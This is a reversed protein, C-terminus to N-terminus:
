APLKHTGDCGPPRKSRGCICDNPGKGALIREIHREFRAARTKPQKAQSVVINFARRRGPTLAQWAAELTSDRDLRAQIEAALPLREEETPPPVSLGAREAEIAAALLARLAPEAALIGPVDTFCALRAARTNPGASSLLGTPDPLLAGKLFSFLCHDKRSGLIVVNAGEFTFCPQRWKVTELLGCDLAIRRLEAHEPAWRPAMEADTEAM